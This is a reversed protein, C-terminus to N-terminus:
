GEPKTVDIIVTEEDNKLERVIKSKEGDFMANRREIDKPLKAQGQLKETISIRYKGAPIGKGRDGVIFEGTDKDPPDAMYSPPKDTVDVPTFIMTFVSKESTKLPQAGNMLKGKVKVLKPGSSCGVALVLLLTAGAFIKPLPSVFPVKRQSFEADRTPCAGAVRWRHPVAFFGPFFQTRSINAISTRAQLIV